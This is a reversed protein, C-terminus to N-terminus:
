SIAYLETLSVKSKFFVMRVLIDYFMVLIEETPDCRWTLVKNSCM